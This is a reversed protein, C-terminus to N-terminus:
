NIQHVVQMDSRDSNITIVVDKYCHQESIINDCLRERPAADHRKSMEIVGLMVAPEWFAASKNLMLLSNKHLSTISPGLQM